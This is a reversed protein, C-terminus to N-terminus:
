KEEIADLIDPFLLRMEMSDNSKGIDSMRVAHEKLINLCRNNSGYHYLLDVMAPKVEM